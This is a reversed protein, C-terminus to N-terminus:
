KRANCKDGIYLDGGGTYKLNSGRRANYSSISEVQMQWFLGELDSTSYFIPPLIYTGVIKGNIQSSRKVKRFSTSIPIEPSSNELWGKKYIINVNFFM